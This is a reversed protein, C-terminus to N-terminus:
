SLVDHLIEGAVDAAGRDAVFADDFGVILGHAKGVGVGLATFMAFAREAGLLEHPSIELVHERGALVPHSIEPPEM